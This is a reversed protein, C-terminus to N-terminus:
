LLLIMNLHEEEMSILHLTQPFLKFSMKLVFVLNVMLIFELNQLEIKNTQFINIFFFTLSSFNLEGNSTFMNNVLGPYTADPRSSFLPPYEHVSLFSGVGHGTGHGYDLGVEWLSRRAM